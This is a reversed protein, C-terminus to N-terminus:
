RFPLPGTAASCVSEPVYPVCVVIDQEAQAAPVGATEDPLREGDTLLVAGVGDAALTAAAFGPAWADPRSADAVLYTRIDGLDRALAAATAFRNPGSVRRVDDVLAAVEDQVGQGIASHGGVIVVPTGRGFEQLHGRVPDSLRTSETLLVTGGVRAAYAGAALSDAFARTPDGGEADGYARALVVPGGVRVRGIEAATAVRDSGSLREVELGLDERLAREVEPSLAAVGGLLRVRRVGLRRLEAATVDSLGATPTYLLPGDLRQLGGSALADAFADDRALIATRAGGNGVAALSIEAAADVADTARFGTVDRRRTAASQVSDSSDSPEVGGYQVDATLGVTAIDATLCRSPVRPVLYQGDFGGALHRCDFDSDFDGSAADVRLVPERSMGDLGYFVELVPAGTSPDVLQWRVQSFSDEQEDVWGPDTLPDTPQATELRFSLATPGFEVCALVLDGRPDAADGTPDELCTVQAGAGAAPVLSAVFFLLLLMRCRLM